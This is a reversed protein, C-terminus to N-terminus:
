MIMKVCLWTAILQWSFFITLYGVKAREIRGGRKCNVRYYRWIELTRSLSRLFKKVSTYVSRPFISGTLILGCVTFYLMNLKLYSIKSM